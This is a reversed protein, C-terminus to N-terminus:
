LGRAYQKHAAEHRRCCQLAVRGCVECHAKSSTPPRRKQGRLSLNPKSAQTVHERGNIPFSCIEIQRNYIHKTAFSEEKCLDGSKEQAIQPFRKNQDKM